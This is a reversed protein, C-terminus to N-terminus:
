VRRPRPARCGNHPIPTIDKILTVNFGQANLGRVASERGSGVGKVFVAVERLGSEQVKESVDKVVMTSAYPTSKKPGKFGLHGASSWALVNGLDDTITVITNNYTAHIYVRGQSVLKVTKKKARRPAVKKEAGSKESDKIQTEDNM